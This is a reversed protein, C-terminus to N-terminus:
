VNKRFIFNPFCKTGESIRHWIRFGKVQTLRGSQGSSWCSYSLLHLALEFNM